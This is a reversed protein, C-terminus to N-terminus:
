SQGVFKKTWDKNHPEIEDKDTIVSGKNLISEFYQVDKDSLVKFNENRVIKASGFLRAQQSM